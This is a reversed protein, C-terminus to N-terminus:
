KKMFLEIESEFKNIIKNTKEENNSEAYIKCTPKGSDPIVLGWSDEYNVKIGEILEISKSINEEILSRMVKGKNDWSCAIEKERFIYSPIKEVLESIKIRCRVMINIINVVINLADMSSIYSFLIERINKDRENIIYENFICRESLKSKVYKCKYGKAIEELAISSNVPGVITKFKYVSILIRAKISEYMQSTLISGNEDILIAEECNYGIHVGFDMKRSVVEKKLKDLNDFDEYIYYKIKLDSFIDQVIGKLLKNSLSIIVKIDSNKVEKLGLNKKIHAYYYCRFDELEKVGKFNNPKTRRFDERIFSNIIKKEMSKSIMIGDKDIFIINVKEKDYESSCIYVAADAKFCATSFRFMPIIMEKASFVEIGMSLLGSIFSYKLMISSANSDSCVIVKSNQKLNAAFASALKCVFEPTFEVNIEGSIGNKGFFIKRRNEGWVVNTKVISKSGIVKDTWIKVGAKIVSREGIMSGAGIVCEEFTWVGRGLQVNNGIVSGRVESNNGIYCNEFIISRKINAGESIINNRSIIAFPGVEAGFRIESNDGIYVPPIIKAGPSITVDKGLWVDNRAEAAKIQFKYTKNFIDFNCKVFQEINGIDRWYGDEIYGYIKQGSKLLNPFVDESFDAEKEKNYFSFIKPEMVYIGTNAKDSFIEGWGPKEIFNSIRGEEDTIAVGYELPIDVKKLAITVMANKSKHSELLKTLDINTLADGSIVIFTEDLFEEANRVSGATGLPSEEIFYNISVGFKKGDEFYNMIEDSLYQLTIGIEKIGHKKLLEIIYLLVPKEGIPMMPKPLNCTLPRLRKGQGGAMVIAKM